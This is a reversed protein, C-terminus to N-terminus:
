RDQTLGAARTEQVAAPVPGPNGRLLRRAHRAIRDWFGPRAPRAFLVEGRFRGHFFGDPEFYRYPEGNTQFWYGYIAADARPGPALHSAVLQSAMEHSTAQYPGSFDQFYCPGLLVSPRNWWVAEIGTSSGFTVTKECADMLAYTDVTAEPQLVTLNALQLGRMARTTANDAKGQNPHMRLWFHVSSDLGALSSALARVGELQTPYLRNRWSDSISVFEDDSSSFIAVNRRTSDWGDPLQGPLQDRVFSMWDTGSRERRGRFWRSAADERDLGEGAAWHERMRAAIRAIDHPLHNFFLQFHGPDCGREHIACEVGASQCARLVARMNAFRGNFVIVRDPREVAIYDRAHTWTQWASDLFARVFPQLKELDPEPDRVMSVVSSLVAFGIDFDGLRFAQLKERELLVPWAPPRGSDSGLESVLVPGSLKEIGHSRRGSCGACNAPVRAANFDCNALGGRCVIYDVSDGADLHRQVLELETEFHPAVTAYPSYVAVKM